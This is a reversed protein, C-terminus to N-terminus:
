RKWETGDMISREGSICSAPMFSLRMSDMRVMSPAPCARRRRSTAGAKVGAEALRSRGVM